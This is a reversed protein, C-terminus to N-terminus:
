VDTVDSISSGSFDSDYDTGQDDEEGNEVTHDNDGAESGSRVLAGDIGYSAASLTRQPGNRDGQDGEFKPEFAHNDHVLDRSPYCKFCLLFNECEICGYYEGFIGQPGRNALFHYIIRNISVFLCADCYASVRNRATQDISTEEIDWFQGHDINSKALQDDTPAILKLTDEGLEYYRALAHPTWRRGIGEAIDVVKAGDRILEEIINARESSRTDWKFVERVAWFLPTWGDRDKHKSSGPLREIVFQVIELRGSVVAFHLTTRGMIDPTSLDVNNGDDRRCLAHVNELTRYLAFHIPRRGMADIANVDAGRQILVNIVTPDMMLCALNLNTGWLRSTELVDALDNELLYSIIGPQADTTNQCACQFLTSDEHTLIETDAGKERLLRVM